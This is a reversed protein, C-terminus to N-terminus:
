YVTRVTLEFITKFDRRTQSVNFHKRLVYKAFHERFLSNTRRLSHATFLMQKATKQVSDLIAALDQILHTEVCKYTTVATFHQKYRMKGKMM